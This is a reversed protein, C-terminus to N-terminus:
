PEAVHSLTAAIAYWAGWCLLPRWSSCWYQMLQYLPALHWTTLLSHGWAQVNPGKLSYGWWGSSLMTGWHLAAPLPPLFRRAIHRLPLCLFDDIFLKFISSCSSQLLVDNCCSQFFVYSFKVWLLLFCLVTNAGNSNSFSAWLQSKDRM